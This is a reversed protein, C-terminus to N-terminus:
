AILKFISIQAYFILRTNSSMCLSLCLNPKAYSISEIDFMSAQSSIIETSYPFTASGEPLDAIIYHQTDNSRKRPDM